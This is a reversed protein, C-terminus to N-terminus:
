ESDSSKPMFSSSSPVARYHEDLLSDIETLHIEGEIEKKALFLLYESVKLGDVQQLGIANRWLFARERKRPSSGLLYEEFLSKM